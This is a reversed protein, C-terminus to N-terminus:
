PSGRLPKDVGRKPASIGSGRRTLTRRRLEPSKIGGKVESAVTCILDSVPTQGTGSMQIDTTRDTLILQRRV